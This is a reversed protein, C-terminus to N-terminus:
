VVKYFTFTGATINGASVLFQIGDSASAVTHVIGGMVGTLRPNHSFNVEEQTIFSFESSSNFNYLYLIGNSAEGTGTGIFDQGVFTLNQQANDFFSTTSYILKSSFDYNATSDASGSKTIRLRNQTTNTGCKWNNYAVMYVDDSDIGTLTVTAVESTVTNTSVQLLGM